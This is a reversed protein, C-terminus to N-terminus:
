PDPAGEEDAGPAEREIANAEREAERRLRAVQQPFALVFACGFAVVGVVGVAIVAVSHDLPHNRTSVLSQWSGALYYTIPAQAAAALLAPGATRGVAQRFREQRAAARIREVWRLPGDSARLLARGLTWLPPIAFAAGAGAEVAAPLATLAQVVAGLLAGLPAALAGILLALFLDLPLSRQLPGARSRLYGGDVRGTRTPGSTSGPSPAAAVAPLGDCGVTPCSRLAERCDAHLRTGCRACTVSREGPGIAGRCYTCPREPQDARTRLDIEV